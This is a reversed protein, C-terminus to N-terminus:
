KKDGSMSALDDFALAFDLKEWGKARVVILFENSFAATPVPVNL